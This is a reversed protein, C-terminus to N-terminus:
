KQMISYGSIFGYDVLNNTVSVNLRLHVHQKHLSHNWLATLETLGELELTVFSSFSIIAMIKKKKKKLM